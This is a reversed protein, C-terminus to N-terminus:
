LGGEMVIRPGCAWGSLGPSRDWMYVESSTTPISWCAPARLRNRM